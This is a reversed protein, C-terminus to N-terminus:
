PVSMSLSNPSQKNTVAVARQSTTGCSRDLDKIARHGDVGAASHQTVLISRLLHDGLVFATPDYTLGRETV